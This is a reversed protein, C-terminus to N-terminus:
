LIKWWRWLKIACVCKYSVCSAISCKYKKQIRIVPKVLKVCWHRNQILNEFGLAYIWVSRRWHQGVRSFVPTIALHFCHNKDLNISEIKINSLKSVWYEVLIWGINLWYISSPPKLGELFYSLWNPHNNLVSHFTLFVHELGGVM